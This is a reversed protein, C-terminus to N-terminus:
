RARMLKGNMQISQYVIKEAREYRDTSKLAIQREQVCREVSREADSKTKMLNHMDLM